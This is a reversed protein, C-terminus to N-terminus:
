FTAQLNVSFMILPLRVLRRVTGDDNYAKTKDTAGLIFGGNSSLNDNIKVRTGVQVTPVYRLTSGEINFFANNVGVGAYTVYPNVLKMNRFVFTHHHSLTYQKHDPFFLRFLFFSPRFGAGVGSEFVLKESKYFRRSYRMGLYPTDGMFQISVSNNGYGIRQLLSDSQTATQASASFSYIQVLFIATSVVITKITKM